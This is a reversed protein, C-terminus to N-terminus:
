VEEAEGFWNLRERNTYYVLGLIRMEIILFYFSLFSEIISGVLPVPSVLIKEAVTNILIVFLLIFFAIGYDRPVKLISPIIFFPNLSSISDTQSVAILGMPFYLSGLVIFIWILLVSYLSESSFLFFYIIYPLFSFVFTGFMLFFRHVIDSWIDTVEPWEPAEDKGDASSSIIKMMFASLYGGGFVGILLMFIFGYIPVFSAMYMLIKYILFLLVGIILIYKGSGFFPYSFVEPLQEIFPKPPIKEEFRNHIESQPTHRAIDEAIEIKHAKDKSEELKQAKWREYEERSSFKPM